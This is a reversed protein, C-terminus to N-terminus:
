YDPRYSDAIDVRSRREDDECVLVHVWAIQKESLDGNCTALSIAFAGTIYRGLVRQALQAQAECDDYPSVVSRAGRKTSVTFTTTTM